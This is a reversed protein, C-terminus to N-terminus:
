NEPWLRKEAGDVAIAHDCFTDKDQWAPRLTAAHVLRRSDGRGEGRYIWRLCCQRAGCEEDHCRTYDNPLPHIDNM